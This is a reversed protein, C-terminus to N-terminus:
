LPVHAALELKLVTATACSGCVPKHAINAFRERKAALIKLKGGNLISIKNQIMKKIRPM